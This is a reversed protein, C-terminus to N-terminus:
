ARRMRNQIAIVFWGMLITIVLWFMLTGNSGWNFTTNITLIIWFAGLFLTPLPSSTQKNM